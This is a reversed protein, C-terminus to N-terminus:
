HPYATNGYLKDLDIRVREASLAGLMRLISLYENDDGRSVAVALHPSGALTQQIM